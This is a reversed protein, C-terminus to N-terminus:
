TPPNISNKYKKILNFIKNFFSNCKLLHVPINTDTTVFSLLSFSRFCSKLYFLQQRFYLLINYQYPRKPPFSNKSFQV